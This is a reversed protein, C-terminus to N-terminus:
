LLSPNADPIESLEGAAYFSFSRGRRCPRM